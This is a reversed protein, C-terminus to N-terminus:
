VEHLEKMKRVKICMCVNYQEKLINRVDGCCFHSRINPNPAVIRDCRNNVRQMSFDEPSESQILFYIHRSYKGLLYLLGAVM